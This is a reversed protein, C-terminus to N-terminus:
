QLKSRDQGKQPKGKADLWRVRDQLWSSKMRHSGIKLDKCWVEKSCDYFKGRALDPRWVLTANSRLGGLALEDRANIEAIAKHAEAAIKIIQLPGCSFNVRTRTLEAQQRLERALQAKARSAAAKLPLAVDTDTLQLVPMMKSAIWTPISHTLQTAKKYILIELLQPSCIENLFLKLADGVSIKSPGLQQSRM